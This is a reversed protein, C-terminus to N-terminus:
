GDYDDTIRIVFYFVAGFEILLHSRSIPIFTVKTYVNKTPKLSRSRDLINRGFCNM